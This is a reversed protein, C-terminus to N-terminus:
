PKAAPAQAPPKAPATAGAAAPADQFVLALTVPTSLPEYVLTVADATVSQVRFGQELAEGEKAEFIRDGLALFVKRKGDHHATGAFRYPNPPPQPAAQQQQQQQPPPAWSRTAFMDGRQRGITERRPLDTVPASQRVVAPTAETSRQVPAAVEVPKGADPAVFTAVATAIAAASLLSWRWRANM